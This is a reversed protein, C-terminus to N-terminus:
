LGGSSGAGFAEGAGFGGLRLRIRTRGTGSGSAGRAPSCGAPSAGSNNSGGLLVARRIDLGAEVNVGITPGAFKIERWASVGALLWVAGTGAVWGLRQFVTLQYDSM